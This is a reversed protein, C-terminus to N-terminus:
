IVVTWRQHQVGVVTHTTVSRKMSQMFQTSLWLRTSSPTMTPLQLNLRKCKASSKTSSVDDWCLRWCAISQNEAAPSRTPIFILVLIVSTNHRKVFVLCQISCTLPLIGCCTFFNLCRFTTNALSRFTSRPSQYVSYNPHTSFFIKFFPPRLDQCVACFCTKFHIETTAMLLWMLFTM